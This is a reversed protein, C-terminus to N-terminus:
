NDRPLVTRPHGSSHCGVGLIKWTGLTCTFHQRPTLFPRSSDWVARTTHSNFCQTPDNCGRPLDHLSPFEQGQQFHLSTCPAWSQVGARMVISALTHFACQSTSVFELPPQCQEIM